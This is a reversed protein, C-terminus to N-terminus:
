SAFGIIVALALFGIALGSSLLAFRSLVDHLVTSIIVQAVEDSPRDEKRLMLWVETNKYPQRKVYFAKLVLGMCVILAFYGAFKFALYPEGSFGLMATCCALAAFGCARGVSLEALQEIKEM